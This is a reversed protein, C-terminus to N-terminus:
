YYLEDTKLRLYKRVAFYTSIWSILIGLAIVIGFLTFLLQEDILHEVEPLLFRKVLYLVGMLMAIAILAAFIGHRIGKWIFPRRIFGQTAGVLQMTRIIFRKSYISLRITNNILGLAIIMLLGCFMLIVLTIKNTNENVTSVLSKQYIVEQVQKHGQLEKEIWQLSDSNAYEARLYLNISSHLPNEGLFSIFDEGLDEKLLRAAEEDTIFETTRTFDAADLTKRLRTVDAEKADKKLVLQFGINEKVHDSIKKTSLLLLGVLGLM